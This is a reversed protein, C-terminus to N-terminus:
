KLLDNEVIRHCKVCYTILNELSDDNSIRWPIIHHAQITKNLMKKDKSVCKIGCKQCTYNDREYCQKRIKQWKRTSLRLKNKSSVQKRGRLLTKRIKDKTEQSFTHGM